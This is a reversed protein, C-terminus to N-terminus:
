NKDRVEIKRCHEYLYPLWTSLSDTLVQMAPCARSFIADLEVTQTEVDFNNFKGIQAQFVRRRRAEGAAERIQEQSPRNSIGERILIGALAPILNNSLIKMLRPNPMLVVGENSVTKDRVFFEAFSILSHKKREPHTDLYTKAYGTVAMQFLLLSTQLAPDQILEEGFELEEDTYPRRELRYLSMMGKADEDTLRLPRVGVTSLKGIPHDYTYFSAKNYAMRASEDKLRVAKIHAPVLEEAFVRFVKKSAVTKEHLEDGFFTQAAAKMGPLRIKLHSTTTRAATVIDMGLDEAYREIADLFYIPISEPPYTERISDRIVAESRELSVHFYDDLNDLNAGDKETVKSASSWYDEKIAQFTPNPLRVGDVYYDFGQFTTDFTAKILREGERALSLDPSEYFLESARRTTRVREDMIELFEDLQALNEQRM